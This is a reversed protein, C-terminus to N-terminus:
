RHERLWRELALLDWIVGYGWGYPEKAVARLHERVLQGDVIGADELAPAGGLIEWMRQGERLILSRAFAIATVKRQGEFGLEPFRRAVSDRVLAKSWGDRNLLEPPTRYLFTVLEADWYPQRFGVGLRRGQEFTEEHEMAVLPHDLATRM